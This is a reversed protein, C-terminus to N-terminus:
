DKLEAVPEIATGFWKGRVEQYHEVPDYIDVPLNLGAATLRGIASKLQFAAVAEDREAVVLNVRSDLLEQEADLVDLVTRSGVQAERQVGELAIESAQIQAKFSTIRAQAAQLSEWARAANEIANRREQNVEIRRQNATHKQQRVRSYVAGGQYLPVTLNLTAQAVEARSGTTVADDSRSVSGNVSVDPLLEARVVRVGNEAAEAVFQTAVVGPNQSAALETAEPLSRPLGGVVAAPVLRGPVIGVVTQFAARSAQLNGEASVRDAIARALRAESQSVDTRTIEGVRFRDQAAELQRRLVQVNNVNLDLIAQDRLVNHYATATSLLVGQETATLQARTAKVTNEAQDIASPTRGGDYIPQSVQLAITRPSRTQPNNVVATNSDVRSKGADASARVVPRWGSLAQPVQEDTARLRAREALLTPNNTYATILAEDLTQAHAATGLFVLGAVLYRPKKM